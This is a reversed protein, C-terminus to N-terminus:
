QYKENFNYNDSELSEDTNETSNSQSVESEHTSCFKAPSLLNDINSMNVFNVGVNRFYENTLVNKESVKKLDTRFFSYHLIYEKSLHLDFGGVRLQNQCNLMEKSPSEKDLCVHSKLSLIQGILEFGGVTLPNECYTINDESASDTSIKERCFDNPSQIKNYDVIVNDFLHNHYHKIVNNDLTDEGFFLNYLQKVESDDASNDMDFFDGFYMKIDNYKLQTIHEETLNFYAVILADKGDYEREFGARKLQRLCDYQQQESVKSYANKVAAFIIIQVVLFVLRNNFYSSNM